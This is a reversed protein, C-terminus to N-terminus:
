SDLCVRVKKALEEITFPKPIFGRGGNELISRIAEDSSFGSIVLARVDDRIKQLEFFLQDGTMNPMLMDMIVLDYERAARKFLELAEIGSSAADVKYGLHQLSILLVNRVPYEDDVILIRETGKPVRVSTEECSEGPAVTHVILPLYIAITTGQNVASALEVAGGLSKVITAVTSLGLGTGKEKKTSFYPEFIKERLDESIGIGDDSVAIRVYRSSSLELGLFVRQLHNSDNVEEVAVSITGEKVIADRANIVLNVILQALQSEICLVRQNAGDCRVDLVYRPPLARRLLTCTRSVVDSVVVSSAAAQSDLKSFNLIQQTISSGKRTGDEIAALSEVHPGNAPLITKLYTTHGLIGTLINNFDHAIGGALLGLTELRQAHFNQVPESKSQGSLVVLLISGDELPTGKLKVFYVEGSKLVFETTLESLLNSISSSAPWFDFELESNESNALKLFGRLARNSYLLKRSPSLVFLPEPLAELIHKFNVPSLTM